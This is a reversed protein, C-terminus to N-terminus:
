QGAVRLEAWLFCQYDALWPLARGWAKGACPPINLGAWVTPLARCSGWGENSDQLSGLAVWM